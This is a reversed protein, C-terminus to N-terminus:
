KEIRFVLDDFDDNQRGDNCRYRRGNNLEEVIMAGGGHWSHIVGDGIDWVNKILLERSKSEVIFDLENPATHQWLVVSNKIKQGNIIFTGATSLSIGQKWDNKCDEFVVKFESKHNVPFKDVMQITKGNYDVPKGTSKIFLDQFSFM